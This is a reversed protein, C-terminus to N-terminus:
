GRCEGPYRPHADRPRAGGQTPHRHRCPPARSYRCQGVSRLDPPRSYEFRGSSQPAPLRDAQCQGGSTRRPSRRGARLQELEASGTLNEMPKDTEIVFRRMFHMLILQRNAALDARGEIGWSCAFRKFSPPAESFECGVYPEDNMVITFDISRASRLQNAAAAYIRSASAPRPTLMLGIALVAVSAAAMAWMRWRNPRRQGLQVRFESLRGRLREEVEDPVEVRNSARMLEDVERNSEKEFM